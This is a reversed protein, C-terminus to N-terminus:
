HCVNNCYSMDNLVNAQYKVGTRSGQRESCKTDSEENKKRDTTSIDSTEEISVKSPSSIVNKVVKSTSPDNWKITVEGDGKKISEAYRAAEIAGLLQNIIDEKTPKKTLYLDQSSDMLLNEDDTLVKQEDDTLVKQEDDTLVKQEDDTLVKQEDDTLVKQEDDTLVKQVDDTLDKQEDDTLVKQEDDTLVKQVDDTLDKQEDDTLVKQEDDTLVKQENDTPVTQKDDDDSLNFDQHQIDADFRSTTLSRPRPFPDFYDHHAATTPPTATVSQRETHRLKKCIKSYQKEM